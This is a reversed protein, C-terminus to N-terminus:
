DLSKSPDVMHRTEEKNPEKKKRKWKIDLETFLKKYDVKM